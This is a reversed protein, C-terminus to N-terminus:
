WDVEPHRPGMTRGKFSTGGMSPILCPPYWFWFSKPNVNGESDTVNIISFALIGWGSLLQLTHNEQQFGSEVSVQGRSIVTLVHPQDEGSIFSLSHQSLSSLQYWPHSSGVAAVVTM